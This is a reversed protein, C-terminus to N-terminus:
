CNPTASKWAASRVATTRLAADGYLLGPEIESGEYWENWSTILVMDPDGALAVDWTADYRGNARSVVPRDVGRLIRDDFGPSVTGVHLKPTAAPDLAAQGRYWGSRFANREAHGTLDAPPLYTHWGAMMSGYVGTDGDTILKVPRGIRSLIGQWDAPSIKAMDWVFVAPVGGVLLSSTVNTRDLAERLWQEVVPVGGRNLGEAVELYPAVVGNTNAAATAAIDFASGNKEAGMWSIVFGDVGNSRAQQTMSLVGAADWVSRPLLPQEAVLLNEWGSATFWPYYAALVLKRGDAKPLSFAPDFLQSRPVVVQGTAASTSVKAATGYGSANRVEVTVSGTGAKDVAITLTGARSPDVAVIDTEVVGRKGAPTTVRVGDPVYSTTAGGSRSRDLRGTVQGPRVHVDVTPATSTVRVRLRAATAVPSTCSSAVATSTPTSQTPKPRAAALPAVATALTASAAVLLSLLALRRHGLRRM